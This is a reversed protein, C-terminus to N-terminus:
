FSWRFLRNGGGAQGDAGEPRLFSRLLLDKHVGERMLSVKLAGCDHRQSRWCVSDEEASFGLPQNRNAIYARGQGEYWIPDPFLGM